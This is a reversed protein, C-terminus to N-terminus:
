DGLCLGVNEYGAPVPDPAFFSKCTKGRECEPSGLDCYLACCYTGECGEVYAAPICATGTACDNLYQCVAGPELAPGSPPVCLFPCGGLPIQSHCALGETCEQTVPDCPMQASPNPWHVPACPHTLDYVRYGAVGAAVLAVVGLAPGWKRVRASRRGRELAELVAEMSSLRLGPDAALGRVLVRHLWNPVNRAGRPVPQTKGGRVNAALDALSDGAFPREGYIAQWLTVSWSFVDTRADVESGRFQEPSMYAPTGLLLGAETLRALDEVGANTEDETSEYSESGVRALGLDMVRVRGDNAVMLNEPKFDRHVLGAAHAAALGMAAATMVALIESWSRRERELWAGLTAGDVYEMALWVTGEHEGVDFIAVINPHALKALAQAELLL